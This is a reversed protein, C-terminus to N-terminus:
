LNPELTRGPYLNPTIGGGGGGKFFFSIFMELVSKPSGDVKCRVSPGCLPTTLFRFNSKSNASLWLTAIHCGMLARPGEQANMLVRLCGHASMLITGHGWGCEHTGILMCSQATMPGKASM